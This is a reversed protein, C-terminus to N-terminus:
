TSLGPFGDSKWLTSKHVTVFSPRYQAPTVQGSCKIHLQRPSDLCPQNRNTHTVKFAIDRDVQQASNLVHQIISSTVDKGNM